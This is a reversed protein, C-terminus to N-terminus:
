SRLPLETRMRFLCALMESSNLVAVTDSPVWKEKSAKPQEDTPQKMTLKSEKPQRKCTKEM